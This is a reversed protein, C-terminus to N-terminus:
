VDVARVVEGSPCVVVEGSPCVADFLMSMVAPSFVMKDLNSAICASWWVRLSLTSCTALTGGLFCSRCERLRFHSLVARLLLRSWFDRELDLFALEVLRCLLRLREGEPLGVPVSVSLSVPLLLSFEDSYSLKESSSSNLEEPCQTPSVIRSLINCLLNMSSESRIGFYPM